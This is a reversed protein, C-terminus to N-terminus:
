SAKGGVNRSILLDLVDGVRYVKRPRGDIVKTTVHRIDKRQVWKRIRAELTGVSSEGSFVAALHAIVAVPALEDEAERVLQQRRARVDWNAGCKCRVLTAARPAYLHETCTEATIEGYERGCGGPVDCEPEGTDANVGGLHCACWCSIEDHRRSAIIENGCVGVYSGTDAREVVKRLQRETRLIGHLYDSAWPLSAIATTHRALWPALDSVSRPPRGARPRAAALVRAWTTLTRTAADDAETVPDTVIHAAAIGTPDPTSSGRRVGRTTPILALDAYAAAINTLATDATRQCRGCLTLGNTTEATCHLCTMGTQTSMSTM